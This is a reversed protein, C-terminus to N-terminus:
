KDKVQKCYQWIRSEDNWYPSHSIDDSMNQCENLSKLQHIKVNHVLVCEKLNVHDTLANQSM